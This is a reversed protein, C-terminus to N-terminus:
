NNASVVRFLGVRHDGWMQQFSEPHARMWGIEISQPFFSMVHSTKSAELRKRWAEYDGHARQDYDKSFHVIRGDASIPQYSLKNQLRSGMFMYMFWNVGNQDPGSTVAISYSSPYRDLKEAAGVWYVPLKHFFYTNKAAEFRIRDRSVAVASMFALFLVILPAWRWRSNLFRGSWIALLATIAILAAMGVIYMHEVAFCFEIWEWNVVIVAAVLLLTRVIRFPSKGEPIVPFSVLIMIYYAPLLFRANSYSWGGLRVFSFSPLYFFGLVGVAMAGFLIAILANRRALRIAGFPLALIPLLHALGISPPIFEKGLGLVPVLSRPFVVAHYLAELESQLKYAGQVCARESNWQCEPLNAALNVGFVKIDAASLPYGTYGVNYLLWPVSPAAVLLMCVLFLGATRLSAGSRYLFMPAIFVLTILLVLYTSYKVGGALGLAAAGFLLHGISDTEIYRALFLAALLITLTVLLDSYGAGVLFWVAPCTSGFAAFILAGGSSLGISRGLAFLTLALSLLYAVDCTGMLIDSHFPALSMAQFVESGGPLLRYSAWGGPADFLHYWGTQVWIAAKVGHYTLTDWALPPLLLTRALVLTLSIVCVLLAIREITACSMYSSKLARADRAIREALESFPSGLFRCIALGLAALVLMAVITFVGISALLHFSVSVLWMGTVIAGCWQLSSSDDRLVAVSIQYSVYLTTLALFLATLCQLFFVLM